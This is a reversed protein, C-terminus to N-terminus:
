AIKMELEEEMKETVDARVNNRMSAKAWAPVEDKSIEVTTTTNFWKENEKYYQEQKFEAYGEKVKRLFIKAASQVRFAFKKFTQKISNIIEKFKAKLEGWNSVVYIGGIATIAGLAAGILFPIM